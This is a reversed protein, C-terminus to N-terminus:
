MVYNLRYYLYYEMCRRSCQSGTDSILLGQPGLYMYSLRQRVVPAGRHAMHRNETYVGFTKGHLAKESISIIQTIPEMKAILKNM